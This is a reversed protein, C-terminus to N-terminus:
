ELWGHQELYQPDPIRGRRKEASGDACVGYPQSRRPIERRRYQRARRGDLQSAQTGSGSNAICADRSISLLFLSLDTSM